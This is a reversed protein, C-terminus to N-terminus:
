WTKIHWSIWIFISNVAYFWTLLYYIEATHATISLWSKRQCFWSDHMYWIRPDSLGGHWITVANFWLLFLWMSVSLVSWNIFRYLIIKRNMISFFKWDLFYNEYINLIVDNIFSISTTWQSNLTWYSHISLNIIIFLASPFISFTISLQESLSIFIDLHCPM